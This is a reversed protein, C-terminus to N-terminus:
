MRVVKVAKHVVDMRKIDKMGIESQEENSSKLSHDISVTFRDLEYEDIFQDLRKRQVNM